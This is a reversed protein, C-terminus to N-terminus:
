GLTGEARQGWLMNATPQISSFSALRARSRSSLLKALMVSGKLALRPGAEGDGGCPRPPGPHHSHSGLKQPRRAPSAWGM